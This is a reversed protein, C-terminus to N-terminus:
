NTITNGAAYVRTIRLHSECSKCVQHLPWQESAPLFTVEANCAPCSGKGEKIRGKQLLFYAFLIPGAFIFVPILLLHLIPLPVSLLALFWSILLAFVARFVRAKKNWRVLRVEGTSSVSGKGLVSVTVPELKAKKNRLLKAM